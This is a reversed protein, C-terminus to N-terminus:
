RLANGEIMRDRRGVQDGTDSVVGLCCPGHEVEDDGGKHAVQERQETQDGHHDIWCGTSDSTAKMTPGIAMKPM